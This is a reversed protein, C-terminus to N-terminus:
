IFRRTYKTEVMPCLTPPKKAIRQRYAALHDYFWDRLHVPVTEVVVAALRWIGGSAQLLRLAASSKEYSTGDAELVWTSVDARGGNRQMPRFNLEGETEALAFRVARHCVGCEGDYHLVAGEFPIAALWRRDFTLLHMLLMPVTLDPFRLLLLFGFQVVLMASWLWPRLRRILYLPAYLLEIYLIAWTLGALLAKPVTVAIDRVWWDRALPNELVYAVTDGAVWGPSLLKTYGSYSYSLALILVAAFFIHQPLRWGFDTQAQGARGLYAGSVCLHVLLMFGMYPMAPNAILPNRTFVSILVLLIWGAAIRDFRGAALFLAAVAGSLLLMEVVWPADSLHLLSPAVAFLPSLDGSALMGEAGFLEGGYPLLYAFHILIYTGFLFRFLSYQGGTTTMNM